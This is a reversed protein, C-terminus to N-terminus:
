LMTELYIQFSRNDILNLYKFKLHLLDNPSDDIGSHSICELDGTQQKVLNRM